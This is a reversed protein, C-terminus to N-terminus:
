ATPPHAALWADDKARSSAFAQEFAAMIEEDTPSPSDPNQKGFLDKIAQLTGPLEQIILPVLAGM